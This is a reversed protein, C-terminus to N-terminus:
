QSTIAAISKKVTGVKVNPTGPLNGHLCFTAPWTKVADKREVEPIELFLDRLIEGQM